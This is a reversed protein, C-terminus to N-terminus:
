VFSSNYKNIVLKNNNNNNNYTTMLQPKGTRFTRNFSLNYSNGHAPVFYVKREWM